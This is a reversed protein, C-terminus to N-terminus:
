ETMIKHCLPLWSFFVWFFILKIKLYVQSFLCIRLKTLTNGMNGTRTSWSWIYYVEEEGERCTCNTYYISWFTLGDSAAHASVCRPSVTCIYGRRVLRQILPPVSIEGWCVYLHPQLIGSGTCICLFRWIEMLIILIYLPDFSHNWFACQNIANNGLTQGRIENIGCNCILFNYLYM